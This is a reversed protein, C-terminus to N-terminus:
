LTGSVRKPIQVWKECSPCAIEKVNIEAVTWFFSGKVPSPITEECHPCTLEVGMIKVKAVKM